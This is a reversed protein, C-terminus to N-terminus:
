DAISENMLALYKIIARRSIVGVMEDRLNLVPVGGINEKLILSVVESIPTNTRV